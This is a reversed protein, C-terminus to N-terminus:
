RKKGVNLKTEKRKGDDIIWNWVNFQGNNFISKHKKQEIELHPFRFGVVDNILCIDNLEYYFCVSFELVRKERKLKNIRM